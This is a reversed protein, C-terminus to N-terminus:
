AVKVRQQGYSALWEELFTEGSPQNAQQLETVQRVWSDVCYLRILVSRPAGVVVLPNDQHESMRAKLFDVAAATFKGDELMPIEGLAESAKRLVDGRYLKVGFEKNIRFSIDLLDLSEIGYKDVLSDQAGLEEPPIGLTGAIMATIKGIVEEKTAM